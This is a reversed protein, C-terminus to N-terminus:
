AAFWSHSFAAVLALGALWGIPWAGLVAVELLLNNLQHKRNLWVILFVSPAKHFAIGLIAGSIGFTYFLLPVISFLSVLTVLNIAVLYNPRGLALYASQALNYRSLIPIFSLLQLMWGAQSYRADYLLHIVWTGTAFLFGAAGIMASDLIWRIRFVTNSFRDPNKRAGESLAPMMVNSILPNAFGEVTAAINSAISYYGLASPNVLGALLLRDGNITLGTVSSSLLIWKGFHILERLADHDWGLRDTPGRLWIHSLLTKVVSAVLGGAIFAWISHTMWGVSIIFVVSVLQAILEIFTIRRLNLTRNLVWAKMSQLSLIVVSFATVVIVAPLIPSAYVSNRPLWGWSNALYLIAAFGACLTWVFWGQLQRLTWVTNLFSRNEGNPSRFVAQGLGIDSLFCIMVYLAMSTAALGFVQPEFIRTTILSSLVQIALKAVNGILTWSGARFVRSKLSGMIPSSSPDDNTTEIVVKSKGLGAYRSAGNFGDM